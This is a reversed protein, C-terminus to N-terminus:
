GTEDSADESPLAIVSASTPMRSVAPRFDPQSMQPQQQVATPLGPQPHARPRPRRAERDGAGGLM